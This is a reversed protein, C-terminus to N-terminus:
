ARTFTTQYILDTQFLEVLGRRLEEKDPDVSLFISPLDLLCFCTGPKPAEMTDSVNVTYNAGEKISSQGCWYTLLQTYNKDKVGMFLDVLMKKQDGEIPRQPDGNRKYVVREELFKRFEEESITRYSLAFLESPTVNMQQFVNTLPSAGKLFAKLRRLSVDSIGRYEESATERLYEEYEEVMDEPLKGLKSEVTEATDLLYYLLSDAPPQKMTMLWLIYRSLPIDTNMNNLIAHAFLAGTTEYLNFVNIGGIERLIDEDSARSIYMRPVVGVLDSKVSMQNFLVNKATKLANTVFQRRLGGADVGEEGVYYVNLDDQHILLKTRSKVSDLLEKGQRTNIRVCNQQMGFQLQLRNRIKDLYAEDVPAETAKCSEMLGSLVTRMDQSNSTLPKLTESCTESDPYDRPKDRQEIEEGNIYFEVSLREGAENYEILAPGNERHLEDYYYWEEMMIPHEPTNFYKIVAPNDGTRQRKGRM